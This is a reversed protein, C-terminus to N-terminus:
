MTVSHAPRASLTEREARLRSLSGRDDRAGNAYIEIWRPLYAARHALSEPFLPLLLLALLGPRDQFWRAALWWLGNVAQAEQRYRQALREARSLERERLPISWALYRLLSPTERVRAVEQLASLEPLAAFHAGCGRMVATLCEATRPGAERDDANRLGSPGVEWKWPANVPENLLCRMNGTYARQRVRPLPETPVDAIADASGLTIRLTTTFDDWHHPDHTAWVHVTGRVAGTLTYLVAGSHIPETATAAVPGFVTPIMFM